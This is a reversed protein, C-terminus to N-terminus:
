FIIQLRLGVVVATDIEQREIVPPLLSEVSVTQEQSTRIVQIDPTLKMWPTIAFNYYAEGGYENRFAERTERPGTFTPNSVDIYYFGLGCEDLPRSPVIGKGGIGLSFFGNMPNPNGDSLGLRGFIGIGKGSGKQPEYLYQDFNYYLVWANDQQDIGRNQIIVRSSQELSSFNKANYIAGLLQHGTMGFFNTRGRVEAAYATNGEFVTDFGSRNAKGAGDFVMFNIIAAKPDGTPLLIVGASLASTPTLALVPNLNFAMNFFQRDGKGHAFENADGSTTDVKGIVVGAFKSFFQMFSVEPLNVEQSGATPFMQNFNVPTIAGPDLNISKNYNGEVEVKFFGGPWLGMKQTDMHITLNGRGAYEWGQKRGGSVVSMGTQTLSMDFTLGKNALDNRAGGWDGTLTSRNLLDGSYTKSPAAEGALAQANFFIGALLIIVAFFVASSKLMIEGQREPEAVPKDEQGWTMPM